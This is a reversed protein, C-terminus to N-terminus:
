EARSLGNPGDRAWLLSFIECPSSVCYGYCNLIPMMMSSIVARGNKIDRKLAAILAASGSLPM